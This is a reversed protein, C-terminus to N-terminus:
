YDFLSNLANSDKKKLPVKPANKTVPQPEEQKVGLLSELEVKSKKAKEVKVKESEKQANEGEMKRKKVVFKPASQSDKKNQIFKAKVSIEELSLQPKEETKQEEKVKRKSGEEENEDEVRKVYNESNKFVISKLIAEEEQQVEKARMELVEETTLKANKANLSRIHDLSDLIDMEMKSELTRNELKKMADNEEEQKEKEKEEAEKDKERWPEFNRSCNSETMYDANKPDTKITFEASCRTCKMYFRYIKIGLYEEGLITEKRSNLKKGRYLYEGCTNCRISMPLMMRVKMREFKDKKNRPLKTPDFDPAFYKNLVKREAM